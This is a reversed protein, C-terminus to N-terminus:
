YRATASYKWPKSRALLISAAVCAPVAALLVYYRRRLAGVFWMSGFNREELPM